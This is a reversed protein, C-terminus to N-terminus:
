LIDPISLGQCLIILFIKKFNEQTVVPKCAALHLNWYSFNLNKLM